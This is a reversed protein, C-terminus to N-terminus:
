GTASPLAPALNTSLSNLGYQEEFHELTADTVAKIQLRCHQTETSDFAGNESIKNSPCGGGCFAFYACTQKCEAVGAQVQANIAAFKDSAFIEELTQEHVNGFVFNGWQPHTATLLEPSFTSVNGQWDFNLIALPVNDQRMKETSDRRIQGIINGLERVFVPEGNNSAKLKLLHKMFTKYRIFDKDAELSSRENTGEAEEANFGFQTLHHDVFFQWITEPHEIADRTVVMIVPPYIGSEQLLRIGRMAREFTGKGAKDVRNADHIHKPGDLSVGVHINYRKFFECWDKNVLTANTQFSMTVDVGQTNHTELLELAHEYFGIPMVLPEGAHWVLLLEESVFPSSFLREFIKSLTETSIRKNLSRQPLYCYRCNINCLPTPQIVVLQTRPARPTNM